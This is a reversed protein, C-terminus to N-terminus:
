FKMECSECFDMHFELWLHHACLCKRCWACKIFRVKSCDGIECKQSDSESFIFCVQKVNEFKTKEFTLKCAYWAYKLMPQFIPASLQFHYLSQLKIQGKRTNWSDEKHVEPVGLHLRLGSTIESSLYKLQRYFTADCPQCTPTCKDPIVQLDIEPRGTSGGFYKAYSDPNKHGAWADVIHLFPGKINPILLKEILYENLSTTMKGSTSCTLEVNCPCYSEVERKVRIGFRGSEEQLCVFVKGVIQGALNIVYQVTYSHTALNKPSQAYGYIIKEGRPTLTRQSTIEYQFGTQDTNLVHTQDFKPILDRIKQQFKTAAELIEEESCVERKSVLRTIKRSGIKYNRRFTKLWKLSFKFAPKPDSIDLYKELAFTKLHSPRIIQYTSRAKLIKQYVHANIEEVMEAAPIGKKVDAKWKRLTRESKLESFSQDRITTWHWTPHLACFEVIEKKRSFSITKGPSPKKQPPPLFEADDCKKHDPNDNDESESSSQQGFGESLGIEDLILIIFLNQMLFTSGAKSVWFQLNKMM